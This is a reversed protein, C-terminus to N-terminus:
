DGGCGGCSSCSTGCSSDSSSGVDSSNWSHANKHSEMEFLSPHLVSIGYFAYNWEWESSTEQQTKINKKHQRDYYKPVIQSVVQRSLRQLFFAISITLLLLLITIQTVPKDRLIGTLLRIFGFLLLVGLTIFNIYFLRGFKASKIFYKSVADVTNKYNSFVAKNKLINILSQYPMKKTARITEIIQYAELTKFESDKVLEITGESAIIKKSVILQNLTGDIVRYLKRTKLFVIELPHLHFLFSSPHVGEIIKSSENKNYINLAIFSVGALSLYYFIFDPNGIQVYLPALLYYAPVVLISFVFIGIIIFTRIKINAKKLQLSDYMSSFIWIDEPQEGFEKLYLKRTREKAARFKEFDEKNHTSPVHQIQKGLMDCLEKYSQTFILHEHWVVDIIESPSVMLESTAALYMFKKYELIAKKTFNKTWYNEKALRTSFGYESMPADLDYALVENWLNNKM